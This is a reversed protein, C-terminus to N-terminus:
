TTYLTHTNIYLTHIHRYHTIQTNIIHLKHHIIHTHTHTYHTIQTYLTHKSLITHCKTTFNYNDYYIITLCEGIRSAAIPCSRRYVRWFRFAPCWPTSMGRGDNLVSGAEAFSKCM